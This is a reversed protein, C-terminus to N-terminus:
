LIKYKQFGGKFSVFENFFFLWVLSVISRSLGPIIKLHPNTNIKIKTSPKLKFDKLELLLHLEHTLDMLIGM